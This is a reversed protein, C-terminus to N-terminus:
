EGRGVYERIIAFVRTERNAAAANADPQPPLSPPAALRM